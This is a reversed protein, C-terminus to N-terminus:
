GFALYNVLLRSYAVAEGGIVMGFLFLRQIRTASPWLRHAALTGSLLQYVLLALFLCCAARCWVARHLASLLLITTSIV